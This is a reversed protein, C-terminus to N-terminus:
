ILKGILKTNPITCSKRGIIITTTASQTKSDWTHTCDEILYNGSQYLAIEKSGSGTPVYLALDVVKGSMLTPNFLTTILFRDIFFERRGKQLIRGKLAEKEGITKQELNFYEYDTVTAIKGVIPVKSGFIMNDKITKFQDNYEGTEIDRTIIQRNRLHKTKYSGTKFPKLETIYSENFTDQNPLDYVLTTVAGKDTLSKINKFNFYGDCTGFMFFPFEKNSKSYANELVTEELFTKQDCDIQYWTTNCDVSDIDLKENYYPSTIKKTIDSLKGVHAKNLVEQTNYFGSVFNIQLENSLSGQILQSLTEDSEVTYKAKLKIQDHLLSAFYIEYDNGECSLLSEKFLGTMDKIYLSATNYISYISDHISLSFNRADIDLDVSEVTIGIEYTDNIIM